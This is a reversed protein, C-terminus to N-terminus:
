FDDFGNNSRNLLLLSFIDDGQVEPFYIFCHSIEKDDALRSALRLDPGNCFIYLMLYLLFAFFARIMVLAHMGQMPYQNIIYIYDHMYHVGLVPFKVPKFFHPTIGIALLMIFLTLIGQHYLM